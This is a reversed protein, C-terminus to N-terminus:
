LFPWNEHVLKKVEEPLDEVLEEISRIAKNPGITDCSFAIGKPGIYILWVDRSGERLVEFKHSVQEM